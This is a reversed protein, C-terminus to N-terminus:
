RAPESTSTGPIFYASLPCRARSMAPTDLLEVPIKSLTTSSERSGGGVSALRWLGRKKFYWGLWTMMYKGSAGWRRKWTPRGGRVNYREMVGLGHRGLDFCGLAAIYVSSLKREDQGRVSGVVVVLAPGKGSSAEDIEGPWRIFSAVIVGRRVDTQRSEGLQYVEDQEAFDGELGEFPDNRLVLPPVRRTQVVEGSCGDGAVEVHEALLKRVVIGVSGNASSLEVRDLDWGGRDFEVAHESGRLVLKRSDAVVLIEGVVAAVVVVVTPTSHVLGAALALM